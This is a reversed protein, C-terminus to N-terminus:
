KRKRGKKNKKDRVFQKMSAGEDYCRRDRMLYDEDVHILGIRM